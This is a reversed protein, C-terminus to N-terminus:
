DRVEAGALFADWSTWDEKAHLLEELPVPFAVLRAVPQLFSSVVFQALCSASPLRLSAPTM